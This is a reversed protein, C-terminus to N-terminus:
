TLFDPILYDSRGVRSEVLVDVDLFLHDQENQTFSGIDAMYVISGASKKLNKVLVFFKNETTIEFILLIACELHMIRNCLETAYNSQM